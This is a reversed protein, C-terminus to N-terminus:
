LEILKDVINKSYEKKSVKETTLLRNVLEIQKTARKNNQILDLAKEKSNLVLYEEYKQYNSKITKVKMSSPLMCQYASILSCLTTEKIFEGLKLLENNLIFNQKPIDIIEKLNETDTQKKINTVFGNITNKGFPVIVKMGVKIKDTLRDPIIYTFQRDLSKAGYEVLVEAYM